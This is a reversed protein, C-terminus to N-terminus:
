ATLTAPGASCNEGGGSKGGSTATNTDV